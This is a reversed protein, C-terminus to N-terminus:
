EVPPPLEVESTDGERLRRVGEAWHLVEAVAEFFENGIYEDLAVHENLGRALEVNQLIPVGAEIAARKIQEAMYGEGKAVVMPLDTIGHEYQLAIAIHTPNTVVVNSQRVANLMNQQSWEQHLQRRRSKVHPDGESEKVEQQIDRRSMRLQKMYSFKQYWVDIASVFFFVFITWIGIRVLGHWIGAGMAEPPAYPLLMLQAMMKYIVFIGIGILAGSKIVSKVLEVLNDVSFMKKIGEAPNMKDMSPKVKGMSLIPGVQLFEIVVGLFVAMALLPLSLWLLTDFASAGVQRLADGFPQNIADISTEFLRILKMRMFDLMLWGCVVWGLVLVTSTLEKSKAVNGEKRADRVKKQTPPETKDAGQDKSM